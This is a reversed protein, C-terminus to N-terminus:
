FEEGIQEAKTVVSHLFRAAEVGNILRHDFTMVLNALTRGGQEFTAGIFIVAIAPSVLVPVADIINFSGMYTLLLHTDAGAQDEGDRAAHIREQATKVFDAYALSDAKSVVATVLDDNPRAVAVGLNVHAYERATDDSVLNSRFKPYEKVAQAVCYAFTQFETPKLGNGRARLDAVAKVIPGWDVAQKMTAPIVTQASRKLRHVFLRQQQSLSRDTYDSEEGERKPLPALSRRPTPKAALYADVDAPMLKGSPAPISKLEDDTLGLEKAHARTRPPIQIDTSASTTPATETIATSAASAEAEATAETDIRAVPAGIPLVAGEDALWETIVGEYPSEVEMVAKDTEMSYLFEDRKVFDGPKKNVSLLVVEQLGEGMQPILIDLLAM